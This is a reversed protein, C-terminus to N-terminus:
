HFHSLMIANYVKIKFYPIPHMYISMWGVCCVHLPTNDPKTYPMRKGNTLNLL